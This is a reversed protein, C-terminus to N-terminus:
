TACHTSTIILMDNGEGRKGRRTEMEKQSSIRAVTFWGNLITLSYNNSQKSAYRAVAWIADSFNRM